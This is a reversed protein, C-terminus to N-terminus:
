LYVYSYILSCVKTMSAESSFSLLFFRFHFSLLSISKLAAFCKQHNKNWWEDPINFQQYQRNIRLRVYKLMILKLIFVEHDMKSFNYLFSLLTSFEFNSPVNCKFLVQFICGQIMCIFCQIIEAVDKICFFFNEILFSFLRFDSLNQPVM